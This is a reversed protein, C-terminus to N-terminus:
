EGRAAAAGSTQRLRHGGREVVAITILSVLFALVAILFSPDTFRLRVGAEQVRIVDQTGPTVTPPPGSRAMGPSVRQYVLYDGLEAVLQYDQLIRAIRPDRGFYAVYDLRRLGNVPLDRAHRFVVLLKPRHERLDELVAQNLYRESPSMEPVAHYALPESRRLEEGYEAALIWLHPFRSASRAGSYNILPYASRLHYSMVYVGEGAARARVVRVLEEFQDRDADGGAGMAVAANQVCVVTVTAALVSVALWRYILRV